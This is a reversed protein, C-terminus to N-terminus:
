GEAGTQSPPRRGGKVGCVPPLYPSAGSAVLCRSYRQRVGNGTRIEQRAADVEVVPSGLHAYVGYRQYFALGTGFPFCNELPIKGAIFYTTLMPNYPPWTTDSYLHITEDCGSERLAMIAHIAAAGNGIIVM